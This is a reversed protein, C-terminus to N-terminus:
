FVQLPSPHQWAKGLGVARSDVGKIWNIWDEDDHLSIKKQHNGERGACVSKLTVISFEAEM